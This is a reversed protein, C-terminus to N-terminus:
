KIKCIIIKSNNAKIRLSESLTKNKKIEELTYNDLNEINENNVNININNNNINSVSDTEAKSIYFYEKLTKKHLNEILPNESIDIYEISELMNIFDLCEEDSIKNNNIELYKLKSLYTLEFIDTIYNDSALLM